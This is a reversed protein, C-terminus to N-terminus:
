PATKLRYFRRAFNTSDLDKFQSVGNTGFTNTVISQWFTDAFINTTTELIYTGGPTGAFNLTFTGDPNALESTITPAVNNNQVIVARTVSNTNGNGDGAAYTLLNTGVVNPNVTGSVTVAVPGACADNATAGPDSFVGGLEVYIPNAGNLMIVPGLTDAVTLLVTNTVNGYINTVIVSVTHSPLHVNTLVLSNGTVNPVTVNDLSWQYSLPLGGSVNVAFTANDGCQITQNTLATSVVPPSLVILTAVSSTASGYVNTVFLTYDAANDSTVSTLMLSSTNAGSIGSGNALNLGNKRWQYTLPVTGNVTANFMASDGAVVTLNTPQATFAPPLIATVTVDDLGFGDPPNQAVFQLITSTDTAKLVFTVNTWSLAPPNISSYIKNTSISNTNWNVMFQQGSGSQPNVLWFSLRYNSGPTTPFTQSLTALNTDGLFAGYNGTHIFDPGSGDALSNVGVVANFVSNDNTGNGVLTWSTFDGTEFGGNQIIGVALTGNILQVSQSALNTIQIIASYTGDALNVAALSPTFTLSTQTGPPINGSTSSVNLWASTNNLSWNLTTSSPNTLIIQQNAPVFPGGPPGIFAFTKSPLIVLPDSTKLTFFRSHAVGSTVNSFWLNATYTGAPLNSGVMNLSAVLSDGTGAPLTGGSSSVNLWSSTNIISWVLPSAGSNTLYFTQSSVNFTGVPTGIASFGYNSIVVLPDPNVLANILSTGKPTGLGTCLDYGPVAYFANPSTPSTNDGTTVDNFTSSYFPNM